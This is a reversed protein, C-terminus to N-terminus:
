AYGKSWKLLQSKHYGVMCIHIYSLLGVLMWFDIEIEM